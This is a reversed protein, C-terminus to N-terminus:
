ISGDGDKEEMLSRSSRAHQELTSVRLQVGRGHETGWAGSGCELRELTCGM